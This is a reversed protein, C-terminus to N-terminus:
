GRVPELVLLDEWPDSKKVKVQISQGSSLGKLDEQKVETVFLIDTLLIRYRSKMVDLLIASFTEGIRQSFYKLTWYRVRNRQVLALNRLIPEVEIRIEDLQQRHYVITGNKIFGGLQRQTILDLYRRIPSSLNTYANLGLGSHPRPETDIILRNLKRRQRFVYYLYNLNDPCLRETPNEQSRYLIPIQNDRCFLAGLWNYLIMLEAVLMRSPSEQPVLDIEVKSDERINIAIEPLSLILAGQNIRKERLKHSFRYLWELRHDEKYSYNVQDYTFQERVRIISRVFRHNIPDGEANLHILLSLAPRDYDKKLSLIDHSLLDPLMPIQCGPLYLSSARLRAEHDLLSEPTLM